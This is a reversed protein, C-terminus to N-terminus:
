VGLFHQQSGITGKCRHMGQAQSAVISRESCAECSDCPQM